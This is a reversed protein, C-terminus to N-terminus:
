VGAMLKKSTSHKDIVLSDLFIKSLCQELSDALRELQQERLENLNVARGQRLGAWALLSNASEVHDFLGHVYTGIIQKDQSVAGDLGHNDISLLPNSLAAGTSVGCHIEYGCFNKKDIILNGKVQRLKKSETITSNLELLGLGKENGASDEVGHPDDINHGLMQFGGCVGMLKGGYRLHRLIAKDWGYERMSRLDRRVNKSGPLVILDADPLVQGPGCMILDVNPHARLADFDTHNSIRPYVPVVVKLADSANKLQQACNIADEADLYFNELYPMVALVSKATKQELWDLGPQLLAIDGRFRNIIFGCIRQQESESLLDLTGVIHAFVGGRDIDAVLVVRCDVEEAFGMNAIDNERLNIEAPSGAGEVVIVNYQQSLRRYSELVAAFAQKKYEQYNQASM